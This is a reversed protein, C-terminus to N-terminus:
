YRTRSGSSALGTLCRKHAHFRRRVDNTMLSLAGDRQLMTQSAEAVEEALDSRSHEECYHLLEKLVRFMSLLLPRCEEETRRAVIEGCSRLDIVGQTKKAHEDHRYTLYADHADFWRRQWKGKTSRKELYGQLPAYRGTLTAISAHHSLRKKMM